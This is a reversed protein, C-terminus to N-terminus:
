GSLNEHVIRDFEEPKPPWGSTMYQLFAERSGQTLAENTSREIGITSVYRQPLAHRPGYHAPYVETAAPLALLKQTLSEWLREPDGDGLDTRGCSGLLLTDGTFVRGGVRLSLHDQTHGPTELIEMAHRGFRLEEGQSLRLHPYAAPSQASLYIRAGTRASLAAHGARHDAHTHTEVIAGLTWAREKLWGLYPEPEAGPDVIIARREDLDALLYALCGTSPRPLQVLFVGDAAGPAAYRGLEPRELRALEDIGGELAAVSAFGARALFQAARVAVAGLHDYVVIRHGRPLESLRSPLEALPISRDRELHTIAREFAPRVDVLVPPDPGDIERVLEAAAVLRVPEESPARPFPHPLAHEEPM